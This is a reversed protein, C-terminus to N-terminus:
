KQPYPTTSPSVSMLFLGMGPGEFPHGTRLDRPLTTPQPRWCQHGRCSPAPIHKLAKLSEPDMDIWTSGHRRALRPPSAGWRPTCYADGGEGPHHIAPLPAPFSSLDTSAVRGTSWWFPLMVRMTKTKWGFGVLCAVEM